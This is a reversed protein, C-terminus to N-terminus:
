TKERVVKLLQLQVEEYKKQKMILVKNNFHNYLLCAVVAFFVGLCKQIFRWTEEKSNDGASQIKPTCLYLFIKM